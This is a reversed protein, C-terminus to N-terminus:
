FDAVMAQINALVWSSLAITYPSANFRSPDLNHMATAYHALLYLQFGAEAKNTAGKYSVDFENLSLAAAEADFDSKASHAAYVGHETDFDTGDALVNQIIWSVVTSIWTQGDQMYDKVYMAYDNAPSVASCARGIAGLALRADGQASSQPNVPIVHQRVVHRGKWPFFVIADGLKGRAELSFLPGDVKAM